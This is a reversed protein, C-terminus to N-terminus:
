ALRRARPEALSDANARTPRSLNAGNTLRAYHGDSTVCLFKENVLVDLVAHCQAREVNCLRQVQEPKLRLGPMDLFEARLHSLVDESATAVRFDELLAFDFGEDTRWARVSERKASALAHVVAERRSRLLHRDAGPATHLVYVLAGDRTEERVVIDGDAPTTRAIDRPPMRPQARRDRAPRATPMAM